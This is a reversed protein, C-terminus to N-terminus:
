SAREKQFILLENYKRCTICDYSLLGIGSFRLEIALKGSSVKYIEVV